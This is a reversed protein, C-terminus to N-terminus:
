FRMASPRFVEETMPVTQQMRRRLESTVKEAEGSSDIVRPTILVILETRGFENTTSGFLPGLVPLKHLIPIGSKGTSDSELILGGLVITKGSQIAVKSNITRQLFTRQGTADDIEGVNTVEQNLEMTVLGGANVQPRVTLLVGTDKFEISEVTNGGSTVTESTKVPVQNGVRFNAEQNDIVMLQPSSLVRLKSEEALTQMFARIFGANDVLAYSFNNLLLPNPPSTELPVNTPLGLSGVGEYAGVNNQFYWQFGYRLDDSLAVEAITAEILVQRPTVDIKRLANLVKEYNQDDAWILLSNNETDAIVRVEGGGNGLGSGVPGSAQMISIAGGTLDGLPSAAAGGQGQSGTQEASSEGSTLSAPARGPAVRGSARVATDASIGEFLQTLIGAIYEADGNQVDYVYLRDGVIGDLRDVWTRIDRLYEQQPTIALIGNIREVPIFRFMGALPTGSNEGFLSELEAAVNESEANQLTYLAVSMGKLWNVDFINITEQLNALELSTGALMLLNRMPDVHLIGDEPAFPQLIKEMEPASIYKL